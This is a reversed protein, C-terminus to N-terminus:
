SRAPGFTVPIRRPPPRRLRVVPSRHLQCPVPRRAPLFSFGVPRGCMTGSLNNGDQTVLLPCAVGAFDLPPDSVTGTMTLATSKIVLATTSSPQVALIGKQTITGSIKLKYNQEPTSDKREYECESLEYTLDVETAGQTANSTAVGFVHAKGGVPCSVTEEQPGADNGQLTLNYVLKMSERISRLAIADKCAEDCVKPEPSSAVSSSCGSAAWISALSVFVGAFVARGLRTRRGWRGMRLSRDKM